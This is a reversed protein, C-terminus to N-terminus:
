STYGLAKWLPEILAAKGVQPDTYGGAFHLLCPWEDYTANYIRPKVEIEGEPEPLVAINGNGTVQFITAINDIEVEMPMLGSGV